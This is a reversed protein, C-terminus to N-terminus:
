DAISIAGELVRSRYSADHANGIQVHSHNGGEKTYDALQIGSLKSSIKRMKAIKTIGAEVKDGAKVSPKTCHLIVCDYEPHGKPQIHIRYDDFRDYLKYKKVLVVTGTVPAYVNCGAKGGIDISTNMPQTNGQRYLHLAEADAWGSLDKQENNVKVSHTKLAKSADATDLKTKMQNLGGFSAQHFLIGTMDKPAVTARIAMDGLYAVKATKHKDANASDSSANQEAQTEAQVNEASSVNQGFYYFFTGYLAIAAIELILLVVVFTKTHSRRPAENYPNENYPFPEYVKIARTEEENLAHDLQLSIIGGYRLTEYAAKCPM